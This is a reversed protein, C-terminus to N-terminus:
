KSLLGSIAQMQDSTLNQDTEDMIGRIGMAFEKLHFAYTDESSIKGISSFDCKDSLVSISFVPVEYDALLKKVYKVHGANQKIPNHVLKEWIKGSKDQLTKRWWVDSEKGVVTGFYCKAEIVYIGTEDLLVFDIQTPKGKRGPISIDHIITSEPFNSQLRNEVRHEFSMGKGKKKNEM